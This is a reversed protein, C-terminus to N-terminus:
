NTIKCKDYTVGDITLYVYATGKSIRTVTGDSSVSIRDPHSVELKYGKFESNNITLLKSKGNAVKVSSQKIVPNTIVFKGTIKKKEYYATITVKGNKKITAIGNEDITLVKKNSSTLRDPTVETTTGTLHNYVNFTLKNGQGITLNEFVPMEVKVEFTEFARGSKYATITVTGTSKATVKCTKNGTKSVTAITKDSSKWSDVAKDAKLTGSIFIEQVMGPDDGPDDTARVTVTCSASFGGDVTTATITATGAKVGTVIGNKDVEAVSVNSSGWIVSKDTANSPAVKATLAVQGNVPVSAIDTNLTIGTVAVTVDGVTVKCKATKNGDKTTVTIYAIGESVATVNGNSNVTAVSTKDSSWTVSKDSANSPAVTATLNYSFGVEMNLETKNLTVGTVNVPVTVTCSATKGGDATKVTITATGSAKATVVGNDSVTAISTNSSSWTVNKNTANSPAVTATLTEQTGAKLTIASKNLSVGTVAITNPLVNVTCSATKGQDVTKVTITATGAKVGTVVGNGDVTAVATNSSSWSVFKNSANSPSITATLATTEKEKITVSSKNLTVGTVDIPLTTFTKTESTYKVGGREAWIYWQYTSNPQLGGANVEKKFEYWIELYPTRSYGSYETKEFPGGPGTIVIGVNGFKQGNPNDCQVYLKVDTQSLNSVTYDHFPKEVPPNEGGTGQPRVANYVNDKAQYIFYGDCRSSYYNQLYSYTKTTYFVKNQSESLGQSEYYTISDSDVSYLIVSHANMGNSNSYFRLIDGPRANTKIFNALNNFNTQGDWMIFASPNSFRSGGFIRDSMHMVFGQCGEAKWAGNLTYTFPTFNTGVLPGCVERMRAQVNGSNTGYAALEGEDEIIECEEEPFASPDDEEILEDQIGPEEDTADMMILEEEAYANAKISPSFASLCLFGSLLLALTKRCYM